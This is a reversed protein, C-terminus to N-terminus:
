CSFPYSSIFALKRDRIPEQLHNLPGSRFQDAFFIKLILYALIHNAITPLFLHRTFTFFPDALGGNIAILLNQPNGIPSMVSGTTVAFALSILLLKPSICHARALYIMLPTGIIAVTDNMLLASLIGFGFLILLLLGDVSEARCFLRYSLAHLYGSEKMAEGVIFMGMLFVMVDLNIARAADYPSIQGTLVVAMAGALMIQWIQLRLKGVQRASILVLVAVLAAASFNAEIYM